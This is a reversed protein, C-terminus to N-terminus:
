ARVKEVPMMEKEAKFLWVILRVKNQMALSHKCWNFQWAFTWMSNQENQVTEVLQSHVPTQWHLMQERALRHKIWFHEKPSNTTCM